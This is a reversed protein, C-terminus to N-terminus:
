RKKMKTKKTYKKRPKLDEEIIKFAFDIIEDQEL